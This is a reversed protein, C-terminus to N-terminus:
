IEEVFCFSNDKLVKMPTLRDPCRLKDVRHVSTAPRDVNENYM